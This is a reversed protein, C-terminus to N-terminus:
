DAAARYFRMLAPSRGPPALRGVGNYSRNLRRPATRRRQRFHSITSGSWGTPTRLLLWEFKPNLRAACLHAFAQFLGSYEIVPDGRGRAAAAVAPDHPRAGQRDEPQDRARVEHVAGGALDGPKAGKLIKDVYVAARRFQYDLSGGYSMLGGIEVFERAHYVAPLRYKTALDVIQKRATFFIPDSQVVVADVRERAMAAFASEFEDRGRAEVVQLSVGLRERCDGGGESLESCGSPDPEVVPSRALCEPCSRELARSVQRCDRTRHRQDVRHHKGRASGPKRHFGRGVPDRSAGMVVPITSTAQKVAAIVPNGGTMIVDVNLRVLEAALEPLREQKGWAFRREVVINQGEVYGLERLRRRLAKTLHAQEDPTATQIYGIRYVKGAPQAGSLPVVATAALAGVFRRRDIVPDGRGRAAAAVAPDTLGLAKATKLNIVLEFKTPQEIPLDGPKAGESFATSTSPM